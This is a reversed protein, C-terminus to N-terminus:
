ELRMGQMERLALKRGLHGIMRSEIQAIAANFEATTRAMLMAQAVDPANPGYHQQLISLVKHCQADIRPDPEDPPPAAPRPAPLPAPATPKYSPPPPPPARSPMPAILGLEQLLSLHTPLDPLGHAALAAVSDVGNVMILVRRTAPVLEGSRHAMEAKGRETKYFVQNPM